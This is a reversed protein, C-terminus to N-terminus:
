RNATQPLKEVRVAARTAGDSSSYVLHTAPGNQRFLAEAALGTLVPGTASGLDGHCDAPHEIKVLDHFFERNRAYAVGYEKAWHHEGNM